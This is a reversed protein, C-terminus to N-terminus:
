DIIQTGHKSDITIQGHLEANAGSKGIDKRLHATLGKIRDASKKNHYEDRAKAADEPLKMLIWDKGESVSTLAGEEIKNPDQRVTKSSNVGSVTSWGEAKKKALNNPDKHVMRYRYGPEKNNFENLSAPKWSNTGKKMEPKNEEKIVKKIFDM